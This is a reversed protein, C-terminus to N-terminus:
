VGRCLEERTFYLRVTEWIKEDASSRDGSFYQERYGENSFGSLKMDLQNHGSYLIDAIEYVCRKNEEAAGKFNKVFRRIKREAM